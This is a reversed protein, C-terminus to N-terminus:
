FDTQKKFDKSLPWGHIQAIKSGIRLIYFTNEKLKQTHVPFPNMSRPSSSVNKDSKSRWFTDLTLKMKENARSPFIWLNM